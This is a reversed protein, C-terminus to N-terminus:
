ESEEECYQQELITGAYGINICDAEDDSTVCVGFTNNAFMISLTKLDCRDAHGKEIRNLDCIKRWSSPMIHRYIRDNAACWGQIAGILYSLNKLTKVNGKAWSDEVYVVDPSYKNLQEYVSKMMKSIREDTDKIKHLDVLVFDKLSDNEFCSIGTKNTSSDIGCVIM